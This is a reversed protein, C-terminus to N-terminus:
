VRRRLWLCALGAVLLTITSPEPVASAMIPGSLDYTTPENLDMTVGWIKFPGPELATFPIAWQLTTGGNETHDVAGGISLLDTTDVGAPPTFNHRHHGVYDGVGPSFHSMVLQDIDVLNNAIYNSQGSHGGGPASDIQIAYEGAGDNLGPASALDIRFYHTNADRAYWLKLIERSDNSAVDDPDNVTQVTGNPDGIWDYLLSAQATTQTTIGITAAGLLGIWFRARRM